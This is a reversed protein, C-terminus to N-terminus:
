GTVLECWTSRRGLFIHELRTKALGVYRARRLKMSRVGQSITGEIGARQAYELAFEGSKERARVAELAMHHDQRRVNITRRSVLTCRLRSLRLKCDRVSFKIKLTENSCKDMAPTWSIITRGWPMNVGKAGLKYWFQRCRLRKRSAGAM